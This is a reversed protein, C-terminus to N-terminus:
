KETKKAGETCAYNLVEYWTMGSKTIFYAPSIEMKLEEGFNQEFSYQMKVSDTQCNGTVETYLLNGRKDIKSFFLVFNKERKLFTTDVYYDTSNTAIVKAWKTEKLIKEAFKKAFAVKDIKTEPKENTKTDTQSFVPVCCFLILLILRM